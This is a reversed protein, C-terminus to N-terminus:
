HQDVGGRAAHRGAVRLGELELRATCLRDHGVQDHLGFARQQKAGSLATTVPNVQSAMQQFALCPKDRAVEAEVDSGNFVHGM